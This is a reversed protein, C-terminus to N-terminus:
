GVLPTSILKLKSFAFKFFTLSSLKKAPLCGCGDMDSLFPLDMLMLIDPLSHIKGVLPTIKM